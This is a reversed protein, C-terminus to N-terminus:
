FKISVARECARVAVRPLNDFGAARFSFPQHLRRVQM